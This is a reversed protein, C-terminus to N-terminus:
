SGQAFYDVLVVSGVVPAVVFTVTNNGSFVFNTTPLQRLGDASGTHFLYVAPTTQSLNSLTFVRNAGDIVGTPIENQVPNARPTIFGSNQGNALIVPLFAGTDGNDMVYGLVTSIGDWQVIANDGTGKQVPDGCSLGDSESLLFFVGTVAVQLRQGPKANTLAIGAYANGEGTGLAVTTRGTSTFGLIDNPFIENTNNPDSIMSIVFDPIGFMPWNIIAGTAM